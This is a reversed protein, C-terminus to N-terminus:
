SQTTSPDSASSKMKSIINTTSKNPVFPIIVVKGGNERVHDAGIVDDANYDGGKTLIDPSLLKIINLPDPEEFFTVFDVPKLANVIFARDNLSNIPRQEGKLRKVSSDSNLAVILIDGLSKSKNLYDIHGPHIIDFCGNTFVLKKGLTKQHDLNSKLKNWDVFIM